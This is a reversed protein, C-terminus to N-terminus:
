PAINEKTLLWSYVPRNGRSVAYYQLQPASPSEVRARPWHPQRSSIGGTSDRTVATMEVLGVATCECSSGLQHPLLVPAVAVIM